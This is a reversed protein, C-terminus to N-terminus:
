IYGIDKAFKVVEGLGRYLTDNLDRVNKYKRKLKKMDFIHVDDAAFLISVHIELAESIAIISQLSPDKQDSEIQAITSQSLKALKALETQTVNRKQRLYSIRSGVSYKSLKRDKSKTINKRMLCDGTRKLAEM